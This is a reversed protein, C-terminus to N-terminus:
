LKDRITWLRMTIVKKFAYHDLQPNMLIYDGIKLFTSLVAEDKINALYELLLHSFETTDASYPVVSNIASLDTTKIKNIYEKINFGDKPVVGGVLYQLLLNTFTRPCGNSRSIIADLALKDMKRNEGTLIRNGILALEDPSLFNFEFELCRNRIENLVKYKYNASIIFITNRVTKEMIARLAFQAQPTVGDFEDLFIVKRKSSAALSALEAITGQIFDLKRDISSNFEHWDLGMDRAFAKAVSTKGVGHPGFFAMHPIDYVDINKFAKLFKVVDSQGVVEDLSKPRYKETWLLDIV